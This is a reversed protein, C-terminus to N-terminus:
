EVIESDEIRERPPPGKGQQVLAALRTRREIERTEAQNRQGEGKSKRTIQADTATHGLQEDMWRIAELAPHAKYREGVVDGEKNFFKDSLLVGKDDVSQMLKRRMLEKSVLAQVTIPDVEQPLGDSIARTYREILEPLDPHIRQLKYRAAQEPTVVKAARGHTVNAMAGKLHGGSALRAAKGRESVARMRASHEPTGRKTPKPKPDASIVTAAPDEM